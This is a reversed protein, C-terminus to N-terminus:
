EIIQLRSEIGREPMSVPIQKFIGKKGNKTSVNITFALAGLPYQMPVDWAATWFWPADETAGHRGWRFKAEEGHPLKLLATDVDAEQLEKGTNDWAYMRWVIHMGRRFTSNIVCYRDADVNFKSEGAGATVTDVYFTIERVEPAPPKPPPPPTIGPKPPVATARPPANPVAGLIPQKGAEKAQAASLQQQLAKTKEQETAVQKQAADLQEQSIGGCAALLAASGTALLRVASRRTIIPGFAM